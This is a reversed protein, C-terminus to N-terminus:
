GLLKLVTKFQKVFFFYFKVLRMESYYQEGMVSEQGPEAISNQFNLMMNDIDGAKQDISGMKMESQKEDSGEIMM